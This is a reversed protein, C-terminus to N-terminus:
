APVFPNDRKEEGITTQPGHGPLCTTSDPLKYLRDRISKELVEFDGGPLDTRGISGAFLTDGVIATGSPEHYLTIGGPSHGPTHIVRWRQTGLDLADEHNLLRSPDPATIPMADSLNLLPNGPWQAEATHIWIPLGPFAELVDAIGAIHDIHAHTLVIALPELRNARVEDIVVEPGFSPDIIWCTKTAPDAIIYSNTQWPGLAFGRIWPDSSSGLGPSRASEPSSPTGPM